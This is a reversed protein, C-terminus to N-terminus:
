RIRLTDEAEAQTSLQSFASAGRRAVLYALILFPLTVLDTVDRAIAVDDLPPLPMGLAGFYIAQFPWRVVGLAWAYSAQGATTAKVSTFAIGTLACAGLADYRQSWPTKGLLKRGVELIAVLLVPFFVLGAADSIKGTVTGPWQYKLWHDNVVLVVLAVLALPRLLRDGPVPNSGTRAGDM